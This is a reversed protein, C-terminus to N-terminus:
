LWRDSHHVGRHDGGLVVRLVLQAVDLVAVGVGVRLLLLAPVGVSIDVAGVPLFRVTKWYKGCCSM